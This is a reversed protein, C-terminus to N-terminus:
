WTTWFNLMLVKGKLGRLHVKKGDLDPLIIDPLEITKPFRILNLAEFDAADVGQAHSVNGINWFCLLVALGVASTVKM